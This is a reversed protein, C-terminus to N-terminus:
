EKNTSYETNLRERGLAGKLYMYAKVVQQDSTSAANYTINLKNALSQLIKDTYAKTQRVYGKAYCDNNLQKKLVSKQLDITNKYICDKSRTSTTAPM